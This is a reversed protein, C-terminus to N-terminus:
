GHYQKSYDLNLGNEPFIEESIRVWTNNESSHITSSFGKPISLSHGNPINIDVDICYKGNHLDILVFNTISEKWHEFYGDDKHREKFAVIEPHDSDKPFFNYPQLIISM